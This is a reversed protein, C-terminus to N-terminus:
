DIQPRNSKKSEFKAGGEKLGNLWGFFKDIYERTPELDLDRKSDNSEESGVFSNIEEVNNQRGGNVNSFRITHTKAGGAQQDTTKEFTSVSLDFSYHLSDNVGEIFSITISESNFIFDLKDDGKEFDLGLKGLRTEIDKLIKKNEQPMFESAKKPEQIEVDKVLNLLHGLKEGRNNKTYTDEDLSPIQVLFKKLNERNIKSSRLDDLTITLTLPNDLLSRVFSVNFNVNFFHNGNAYAEIQFNLDKIVANKAELNMEAETKEEPAEEVLAEPVEVLSVTKIEPLGVLEQLHKVQALNSSVLSSYNQDNMIKELVQGLSAKQEPTLDTTKLNMLEGDRLLADTADRSDRNNALSITVLEMTNKVVRQSGVLEAQPTQPTETTEASVTAQPTEVGPTELPRRETIPISPLQVVPTERQDAWPDDDDSSSQEITLPQAPIEVPTPTVEIATDSFEGEVVQVNEPNTRTGTSEVVVSSTPNDTFIVADLTASVNRSRKEELNDLIPVFYTLFTEYDPSNKFGEGQYYEALLALDGFTANELWSKTSNIWNTVENKAWEYGRNFANLNTKLSGFTVLLQENHNRIGSKFINLEGNSSKEYNELHRNLRSTLKQTEDLELPELDGPYSQTAEPAIFVREASNTSIDPRLEQLIEIFHKLFTQHTEPNEDEKSQYYSVIAVMDQSSAGRLLNKAAKTAAERAPDDSLLKYFRDATDTERKNVFDGCIILGRKDDTNQYQDLYGQLQSNLDQSQTEVQNTSQPQNPMVEADVRVAELGEGGGSVEEATANVTVNTVDDATGPLEGPTQGPNMGAQGQNELPKVFVSLIRDCRPMISTAKYNRMNVLLGPNTNSIESVIQRITDSLSGGNRNCNAIKELILQGLRPNVPQNVGVLGNNSVPNSSSSDVVTALLNQIAQSNVCFIGGLLGYLPSMGTSLNEPTLTSLNIVNAKLGFDTIEGTIINIANSANDFMEKEDVAEHAKRIEARSKRLADAKENRRLQEATGAFMNGLKKLM